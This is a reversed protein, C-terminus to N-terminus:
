EEATSAVEFDSEELSLLLPENDDEDELPNKLLKVIWRGSKEEAQLEGYIGVAYEPYIVRILTGVQLM